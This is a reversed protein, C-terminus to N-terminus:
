GCCAIIRHGIGAVVVRDGRMFGPLRHAGGAEGAAHPYESKRKAARRANSVRDGGPGPCLAPLRVGLRALEHHLAETFSLVCAKSAYYVAM